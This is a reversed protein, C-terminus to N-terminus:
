LLGSCEGIVLFIHRALKFTEKFSTVFVKPAMQAQVHAHMHDHTHVDISHHQLEGMIKPNM